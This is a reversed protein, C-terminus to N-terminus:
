EHTKSGVKEYEIEDGRKGCTDESDAKIKVLKMILVLISFFVITTKKM